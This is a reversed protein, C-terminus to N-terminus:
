LNSSGKATTSLPTKPRLAGQYPTARFQRFSGTGYHFPSQTTSKYLKDTHASRPARLGIFVPSIAHDFISRLADRACSFSQAAPTASLPSAAPFIPTAQYPVSASVSQYSLQRAQPKLPGPPRAHVIAREAVERLARALSSVIAMTM